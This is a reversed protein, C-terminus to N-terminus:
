YESSNLYEDIQSFLNIKDKEDFHLYTRSSTQIFSENSNRIRRLTSKNEYTENYTKINEKITLNNTSEFDVFSYGNMARRKSKISINFLDFDHTRLLEELAYIEEKNYENRQTEITINKVIFTAKFENM